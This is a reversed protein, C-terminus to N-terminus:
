KIKELEATIQEAEETQPYRNILRQGTLQANNFDMRELYIKAAYYLSMRDPENINGLEIIENFYMMAGSYDFLKYYAYGNYYKKMLLKYRCKQIYDIAETKLNDFPFKEIFTEFAAIAKRTENQTYHPNLSENYYCVGLQFYARGIDKYDAFLRILEEYEFRAETFKNQKFYCDALKMQAAPTYVSNREFVVETYYPIAKNYKEKEFLNDAIEMKKEVPMTKSIKNSSCGFLILLIIILSLTKKM